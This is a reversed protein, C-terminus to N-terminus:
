TAPKDIKKELTFAKKKEKLNRSNNRQSQSLHMQKQEKKNSKTRNEQQM